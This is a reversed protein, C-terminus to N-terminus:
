AGSDDEENRDDDKQKKKKKWDDTKEGHAKMRHGEGREARMAKMTEHVQEQQEPTLVEMAAEHISTMEAHHRQREAEIREDFAELREVQEESLDLQEAHGAIMSPTAAHMMIMRMEMHGREGKMEHHEKKGEPDEQALAPGALVTALLLTTLTTWRM